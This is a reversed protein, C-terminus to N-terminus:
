TRERTHAGEALAVQPAGAWRRARARPDLCSRRIEGPREPEFTPELGLREVLELVTTEVGTGINYAGGADQEAAAILAAVVDGVYVFDRTQRGDGFVRVRRDTAAAHCYIAIVGGEGLPDQRPGYVNAFRLAM